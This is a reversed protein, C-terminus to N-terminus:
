GQNPYQYPQQPQGTQPFGGPQQPYGQGPQPQASQQYPAPQGPQQYGGPQQPYGSQLQPYGSPQPYPGPQQQPGPQGYGGQQYAGPQAQQPAPQQHQPAAQQLVGLGQWQGQPPTYSGPTIVAPAIYTNPKTRSRKVLKTILLIGLLGLVLYGAYSGIQYPTLNEHWTKDGVAAGTNTDEDSSSEDSPVSQVELGGTVPPVMLGTATREEFQAEISEWSVRNGEIRPNGSASIVEGPFEVSFVVNANSALYQEREEPTTQSAGGPFTITLEDGNRVFGGGEPDQALEALSTDMAITCGLKSGEHSTNVIRFGPSSQIMGGCFNVASQEPDEYAEEGIFSKEISATYIIQVGGDKDIRMSMDLDVCGSVTVAIGLTLALLAIRRRITKFTSTKQIGM